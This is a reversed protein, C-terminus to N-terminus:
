TLSGWCGCAGALGAQLSMQQQTVPSTSGRSAAQHIHRQVNHFQKSCLVGEIWFTDPAKLLKTISGLALPCTNKLKAASQHHLKIAQPLWRIQIYKIYRRFIKKVYILWNAAKGQQTRLPVNIMGLLVSTGAVASM